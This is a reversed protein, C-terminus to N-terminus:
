CQRPGRVAGREPQGDRPGQHTRLHVQRGRRHVERRQPLHRQGAPRLGVHNSQARELIQRARRLVLRGVGDRHAQQLHLRRGPSLHLGLAHDSRTQRPQRDAGGQAHRGAQAGRSSGGGAGRDARGPARQDRRARDHATGAPRGDASGRTRQDAGAPPASTAAPPAAPAAAPGCAALTALGPLALGASGLRAMTILFARRSQRPDTSM